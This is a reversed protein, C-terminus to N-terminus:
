HRHRDYIKELKSYEDAKMMIRPSTIEIFEDWQENHGVYHVEVMRGRIAIVEGLLWKRVTDLVDIHMGIKFHEPQRARREADSDYGDESEATIKGDTQLIEKMKAIKVPISRGYTAYKSTLTYPMAMNTPKQYKSSVIAIEHFKKEVRKLTLYMKGLVASTDPYKEFFKVLGPLLNPDKSIIAKPLSDCQEMLRLMHEAFFDTKRYLPERSNFTNNLADVISDAVLNVRFEKMEDSGRLMGSLVRFYPRTLEYNNLKLQKTLTEMVVKLRSTAEAKGDVDAADENSSCGTVQAGEPTCLYVIIDVVSKARKVNYPEILLREIFQPSFLVQVHEKRLDSKVTNLLMFIADGLNHRSNAESTLAEMMHKLINAGQLYKTENPGLSAFNALSEMVLSSTEKKELQSLLIDVAQVVFGRQPKVIECDTGGIFDKEGAKSEYAGRELPSITKASEAFLQVTAERVLEPPATILESLWNHTPHILMSIFWTSTAINGELLDKVQDLFGQWFKQRQLSRALTKFLFRLMLRTFADQLDSPANPVEVPKISSVGSSPHPFRSIIYDALKDLFKFYPINYVNTDAVRVRNEHWIRELLETPVNKMEPEEVVEPRTREYVLVYATASKWSGDKAGFTEEGLKTHDFKTVSSDNFCYWRAGKEGDKPPVEGEKLETRERIFSYYHGSNLTQGSHVIVGMLRYKYYNDSREPLALTKQREEKALKRRKEEKEPDIVPGDAGKTKADGGKNGDDESPAGYRYGKPCTLSEMCYPKMDLEFPFSVRHVQKRGVLMQKVDDWDFKMRNLGIALTNPLSKFSTRKLITIKKQPYQQGYVGPDSAGSYGSIQEGKVYDALCEQLTSFGTVNVQISTAIRNRHKANHDSLYPTEKQGIMETCEGIGLVRPITKVFRTGKTEDELRSLLTQFFGLSDDQRCGSGPARVPKGTAPDIYSDLFTKPTIARDKSEQLHSMLWQTGYLLQKKERDYGDVMLLEKRLPRMMFLQQLAANIYCTNGCNHLGVFGEGRDAVDRPPEFSWVDPRKGDNHTSLHNATLLEILAKLNEDSKEVLALMLQFAAARSDPHKCKPPHLGTDGRSKPSKVESGKKDLKPATPLAFLCDYTYKLLSLERTGKVGLLDCLFPAKTITAATLRMFAGLVTDPELSNRERMPHGKILRALSSGIKKAEAEEISESQRILSGMLILFQAVDKSTDLSAFRSLLIPLFHSRVDQRLRRADCQKADRERKIESLRGYTIGLDRSTISKLKFYDTLEKFSIKGDANADAATILADVGDAVGPPFPKGGHFLAQLEKADLQGNQDV